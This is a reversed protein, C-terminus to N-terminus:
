FLMTIVAGLWEDEGDCDDSFGLKSLTLFPTCTRRVFRWIGIANSDGGNGSSLRSDWGLDTAMKAEPLGGLLPPRAPPTDNAPLLAAADGHDDHSADIAPRRHHPLSHPRLAAFSNHFSALALFWLCLGYVVSSSLTIGLYVLPSQRYPAAGHDTDITTITNSAHM